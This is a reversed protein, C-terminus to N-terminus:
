MPKYQQVKDNPNYKLYENTLENLLKVNPIYLTQTRGKPNNAKKILECELLLSIAKQITSVNTNAKYKLDKFTLPIKYNEISTSYVMKNYESVIYYLIALSFGGLRFNSMVALGFFSNVKGWTGKDSFIPKSM